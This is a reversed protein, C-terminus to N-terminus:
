STTMLSFDTSQKRMGTQKKGGERDSAPRPLAPGSGTWLGDSDTATTSRYCHSGAIVQPSSSAPHRHGASGAGAM